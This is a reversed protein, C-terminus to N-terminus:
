SVICSVSERFNSTKVLYLKWFVFVNHAVFGWAVLTFTIVVKDSSCFKSIILMLKM